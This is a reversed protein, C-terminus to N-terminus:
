KVHFLTSNPCATRGESNQPWGVTFMRYKGAIYKISVWWFSWRANEIGNEIYRLVVGSTSWTDKRAPKWQKAYTFFRDM